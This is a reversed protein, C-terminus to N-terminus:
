VLGFWFAVALCGIDAGRFSRGWFWCAFAFLFSVPNENGTTTTLGHRYDRPPGLFIRWGDMWEDTNLAHVCTGFSWNTNETLHM